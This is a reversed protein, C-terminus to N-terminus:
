KKMWMKDIANAGVGNGVMITVPTELGLVCPCRIVLVSIGRALAFGVGEGAILWVAITVLAITMVAPVFM